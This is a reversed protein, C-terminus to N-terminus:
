LRTADSDTLPVRSYITANDGRICDREEPPHNYSQNCGLPYEAIWCVYLNNNYLTMPLSAITTSAAILLPPIHFLYEIKRLDSEHVNYKVKLFYAVALSGNYIPTACNGFQLFTAQAVCTQTNGAAFAVPTEVPSPWTTFIWAGSMCLDTISMGFLIRKVVSSKKRKHDAYVESIICGSGLLSMMASFKPVIAM